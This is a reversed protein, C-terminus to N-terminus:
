EDNQVASAFESGGVSDGASILAANEAGAMTNTVTCAFPKGVSLAGHFDNFTVLNVTEGPEAAVAAGLPVVAAGFALAAAGLGVSAGRAVRRAPSVFM